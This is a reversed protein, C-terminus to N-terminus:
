QALPQFRVVTGTRTVQVGLSKALAPLLLDPTNAPLVGTLTQHLLASDTAV